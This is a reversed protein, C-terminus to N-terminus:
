LYQNMGRYTCLTLASLLIISRSMHCHAYLEVHLGSEYEM